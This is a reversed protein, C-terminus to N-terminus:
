ALNPCVYNTRGAFRLNRGTFTGWRAFFAIHFQDTPSKRFLTISKSKQQDDMNLPETPESEENGWVTANYIIADGDTSVSRLSSNYSRWSNSWETTKFKVQEIGKLTMDIGMLSFFFREVQVKVNSASDVFTFTLQTSNKAALNINGTKGILGNKADNYPVYDDDATVVLDVARSSYPFVNTFRMGDGALDGDVQAFSLDLREFNSCPGVETRRFEPFSYVDAGGFVFTRGARGPSAFLHLRFHSTSAFELIVSRDKQEQTLAVGQQPNDAEEGFTSSNFVLYEDSNPADSIRAQTTPTVSYSTLPGALFAEFADLKLNADHGADLDQLALVVEPLILSLGTAHDSFSVKISVDTGHAVNIQVHDGVIGNKSVNGEYPTEAQMVMDFKVKGGETELDFVFRMEEAENTMPGKGGLNNVVLEANAFSIYSGSHTYNVATTASSAHHNGVRHVSISTGLPATAALSLLALSRVRCFM